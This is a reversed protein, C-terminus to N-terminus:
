PAIQTEVLSTTNVVHISGDTHIVVCYPTSGINFFDFFSISTTTETHIPDGVGPMTRLFLPGIPMFGDCWYLQKVDVGPRSTSTNIGQFQECVLPKMGGGPLYPNAQAAPAPEVQFNTM